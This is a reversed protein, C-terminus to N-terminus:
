KLLQWNEDKAVQDLSNIRDKFFLLLDEDNPYLEQYFSLKTIKDLYINKGKKDQFALIINPDLGEEQLANALVLAGPMVKQIRNERFGEPYNCFIFIFKEEKYAEISSKITKYFRLDDYVSIIRNTKSTSMLLKACIKANLKALWKNDGNDIFNEYFSKRALAESDFYLYSGWCKFEYPFYAAWKLPGFSDNHNTIIIANELVKDKTYFKPKGGRFPRVVTKFLRHFLADKSRKQM